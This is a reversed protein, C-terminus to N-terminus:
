ESNQLIISFVSIFGVKTHVINAQLIYMVIHPIM